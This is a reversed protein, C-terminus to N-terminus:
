AGPTAGHEAARLDRRPWPKQALALVAHAVADSMEEIAQRNINAVTDCARHYCRDHPGGAVGGFLAAEENSMREMSGSYLGGTAVGKAAFPAHDSSKDADTPAAALRVADFYDQFIREIEAGGSPADAQYVFRGYNPSGLMDFNLVASIRSLAKASLSDVYHRSGVLGVEEAGWFAFRLRNATVTGREALQLATELIVAAGSGNDNIGPGAPVSDLHAGVLIIHNPDGSPAEAIVNHTRRMGSRAQVSLRIEVTGAATAAAFGEGSAYDIGVVPLDAPASLQGRFAGTADGIGTNVIVVGTAGAATANEVKVQFRCTGRRVLAVAGPPFAAFDAAECGSTSREAPEGPTVGLDVPALPAEIDGTGSYALTRTEGITPPAGPATTVTLAPPAIEEFYPFEFEQLAVRYGAARLRDAVYAASRDYGPSGAARHGGNQDAIDQFAQLHHFVADGTVAERLPATDALTATEASLATALMVAAAVATSVAGLNRLIRNM